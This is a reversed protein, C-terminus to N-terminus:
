RIIEADCNAKVRGMRKTLEPTVDLSDLAGDIMQAVVRAEGDVVITTKEFLQPLEQYCTGCDNCTPVDAPDLWIPRDGAPGGAGGSAAPAGGPGGAPGGGGAFAAGFGFDLGAPTAQSSSALEAMAAAIQDLSSERSEVAAEYRATLDAIEQRHAASLAAGTQGALFQLTQWYHRRDEVLAVVGPRCAVRILRRKRDTAWIFPTKGSRDAAALEVYEAIPVADDVEEPALRRFQKAFRVEGYAFEAPTIPTQLLALQGADDLHQLTRTTWLGGPEPNGDLSFREPLSAGRRPDHVFLPAMRSEVALRSRANSLDEAIGNETSCPTYVEMLAAGDHYELMSLATALFHAHLATSVSCAFVRPHFSALLGLEKRAERKGDHVRGFRALDADQGTYSATSSQGGTNSYSGTNLVIAKIPTGAALVRSMAGFGIDFATGDGSVTMMAPALGFEEPTFDRWSITALRKPDKAPDFADALEARAARLAQVEPVLGSILGEWIGAALPQADQFLSNVWPDTYPTFPMTSAYVSSCGTSNAVVTTAPGRGTPGGEYLYLRAELTRILGAIREARAEADAKAQAGGAASAAQVAEAKAALEALLQELEAVHTQRRADGVAHSLTTLLRLATVEGCGRCAGHGGTMAYYTDHDLLLRKIDGDPEAAGQTFRKPTGPLTTLREFRTELTDATAATQDVAVLAAPGCVDVCQLCGTCKWPDVVASFLGGRGPESTEVSDFFPRTRATPFEALASAVQDLVRLVSKEGLEAAARRAAEPLDKLAPDARYAQRISDAWAYVHPALAEARGPALGAARVGDQLLDVIEHVQNPIATDPCALACELCGTCVDPNFIPANRRFVGKDKLAGSGIPMFLGAGPLVPAEAISGERFPRAALDEYYDPDFLASSRSQS